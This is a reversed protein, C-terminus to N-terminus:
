FGLLKDNEAEIDILAEELEGALEYFEDARKRYVAARREDKTTRALHDYKIFGAGAEDLEEAIDGAKTVAEMILSALEIDAESAM